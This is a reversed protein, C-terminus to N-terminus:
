DKCHLERYWVLAKQTANTLPALLFFHVALWRRLGGFTKKKKKSQNLHFLSQQLILIKIQNLHLCIGNEREQM